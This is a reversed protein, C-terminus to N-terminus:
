SSRFSISNGLKLLTPIIRPWVGTFSLDNWPPPLSLYHGMSLFVFVSQIYLCILQPTSGSSSFSGGGAVTSSATSDGVLITSNNSHRPSVRTQAWSSSFLVTVLLKSRDFTCDHLVTVEPEPSHNWPKQLWTSGITPCSNRLMDSLLTPKRGQTLLLQVM